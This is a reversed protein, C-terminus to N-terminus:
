PVFDRGAQYLSDPAPFRIENRTFDFFARRTRGSRKGVGEIMGMWDHNWKFFVIHRVWSDELHGSFLAELWDDIDVLVTGRALVCDFATGPAGGAVPDTWEVRRVDFAIQRSALISGPHYWLLAFPVPIVVDRQFELAISQDGTDPDPGQIVRSILDFPLDLASKFEVLVGRMAANDMDVPQGSSIVGLVYAFFTDKIESAPFSVEKGPAASSVAAPGMGAASGTGAGPGPEAQAAAPLAGALLPAAALLVAALRATV